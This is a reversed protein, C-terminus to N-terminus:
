ILALNLVIGANIKTEMNLSRTNESSLFFHFLLLLIFIKKIVISCTGLFNKVDSNRKERM